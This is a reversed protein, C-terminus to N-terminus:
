LKCTRQTIKERKPLPWRRDQKHGLLLNQVGSPKPDLLNIRRSVMTIVGAKVKLTHLFMDYDFSNPLLM